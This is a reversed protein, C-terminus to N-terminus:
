CEPGSDYSKILQGQFYSTSSQVKMLRARQTWAKSPAALTELVDM